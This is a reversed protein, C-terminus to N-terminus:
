RRAHFASLASERARWQGYAEADLPYDWSGMRHLLHGGFGIKFRWLGYLPHSEDPRPSTGFMDYEKAGSAKAVKIANWQLAYAARCDRADASSAGYLYTASDNSLALIMGAVTSGRCDALYLRVRVGGSGDAALAAEFDAIGHETFRNRRATELYLDHWLGLDDADGERVEVGAKEALRINRRTVPKMRALIEKEDPELDIILTDPPMVDGAAKHLNRRETGWNMRLERTRADPPGTWFGREDYRDAELAYPSEWPLDYRICICDSPLMPKLRESIRELYLGSREADPLREPGFPAYAVCADPGIARTVILIDGSGSADQEPAGTEPAGALAAKLDFAQPSWGLRSKVNGWYSTQHVIGTPLLAAAPKPDVTVLM